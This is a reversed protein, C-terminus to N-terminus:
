AALTEEVVTEVIEVPVDKKLVVVVAVVVAVATVAVAVRVALTKNFFSKKPLTTVNTVPTNESM